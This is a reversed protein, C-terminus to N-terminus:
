GTWAPRGRYREIALDLIANLMQVYGIGAAALLKTFSSEWGLGPMTNVENVLVERDAVFFDVRAMNACQVLNFVETALQRIRELTNRTLRAPVLLDCGGGYKIEYSCWDAASVVEGPPLARPRRNGIVACEVEVGRVAPEAIAVPGYEFARRLADALEARIRVKSVGISSGLSAPKVFVPYVLHDLDPCHEHEHVVVYEPQPVKAAALRAKFTPKHMCVASSLVGAGVYPVDALELLAQVTGDEGRPGPLYPFVVDAGALGCGPTIAVETSGQRWRGACDIDIAVVEHGAEVLGAEVTRVSALGVERESSRGGRLLVVRV